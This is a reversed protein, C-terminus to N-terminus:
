LVREPRPPITFIYSRSRGKLWDWQNEFRIYELDLIQKKSMKQFNNKNVAPWASEAM